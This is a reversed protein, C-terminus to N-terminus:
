KDGGKLLQQVEALAALLGQSNNKSLVTAIDKVIQEAVALETDHWDATDRYVYITHAAGFLESSLSVILEELGDLEDETNMKSGELFSSIDSLFLSPIIDVTLKRSLKYKSMM